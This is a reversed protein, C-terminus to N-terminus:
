DGKMVAPAALSWRHGFPDQLQGYRDGWFQDELPMFVSAGAEVAQAWVADVDKVQLHLAMGEPEGSARGSYEPFDDNLLLSGGNILLHGHLVRGGESPMRALERAGFAAKYFDIAEAARRDRITIHPTVGGAPGQQENRVM